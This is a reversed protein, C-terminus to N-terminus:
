RDGGEREDRERSASVSNQSTDRNESGRDDGRRRSAAHVRRFADRRGHRSM